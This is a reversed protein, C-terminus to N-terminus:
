INNIKLEIIETLVNPLVQGFNTGGYQKEDSTGTISETIAYIPDYTFILDYHKGINDPSGSLITGEFTVVTTSAFITPAAINLIIAVVLTLKNSKM